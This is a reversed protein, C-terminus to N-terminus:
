HKIQIKNLLYFRERNGKEGAVESDKKKVIKFYIKSWLEDLKIM